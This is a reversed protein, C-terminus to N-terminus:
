NAMPVAIAVIATVIGTGIGFRRVGWRQVGGSVLVHIATPIGVLGVAAVVGLIVVVPLIMLVLGLPNVGWNQGALAAHSAVVGLTYLSLPIGIGGGVVVMMALWGFLTRRFAGRRGLLSYGLGFGPIVNLVAAILYRM